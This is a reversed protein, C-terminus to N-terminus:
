DIRVGAFAADSAADICMDMLASVTTKHSPLDGELVGAARLTEAVLESCFYAKGNGPRPWFVGLLSAGWYNFSAGRAVAAEVYAVAADEQHHTLSINWFRWGEREYKSLLCPHHIQVNRGPLVSVAIKRRPFVMEVHIYPYNTGGWTIWQAFQIHRVAATRSNGVVRASGEGPAIFCLTVGSVYQSASNLLQKNGATIGFKLKKKHRKRHIPPPPPSPTLGPLRLRPYQMVSQPTHLLPCNYKRKGMEQKIEVM